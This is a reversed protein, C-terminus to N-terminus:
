DDAGLTLGGIKDATQNKATLFIVPMSPNITKFEKCLEFGNVYPHMVDLLVLSLTPSHKNFLKLAESGNRALTVHYNELKLNLAITDALREEDEVIFIHHQGSM